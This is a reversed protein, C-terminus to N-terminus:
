NCNQPVFCHWLFIQSWGASTSKPLFIQSWGASTFLFFNVHVPQHWIKTFFTSQPRCFDDQTFLNRSCGASASQQFFFFFELPGFVVIQGRLYDLKPTSRTARPLEPALAGGSAARGSSTRTVLQCARVYLCTHVPGLRYYPDDPSYRLSDMDATM